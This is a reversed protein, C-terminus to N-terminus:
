YNFGYVLQYKGYYKNSYKALKRQEKDYKVQCTALHWRYTDM